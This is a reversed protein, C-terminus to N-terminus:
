EAYYAGPRLDDWCPLLSRVEEVRALDLECTVVEEGPGAAALLEGTPSVVLSRGPFLCGGDAGAKNVGVVFVQNEVARARLLLEWHEVRAAPFAAPVFLIRAGSRALARSVEPFRVDYCIMLGMKVYPTSFTCLREGPRFLRKEGLPGFLHVKAYSACLGAPSFVLCTNALGSPTVLPLSGGIVYAGRSCALLELLRATPGGTDEAGARVFAEEHGTTWLEPFVLFQTGEPVQAALRAAALRAEEGKRAAALQFLAVRVVM